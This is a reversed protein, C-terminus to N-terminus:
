FATSFEVAKEKILGYFFEITLIEIAGKYFLSRKPHKKIQIMLIWITDFSIVYNFSVPSSTLAYLIEFIM